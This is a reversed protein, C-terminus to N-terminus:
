EDTSEPFSPIFVFKGTVINRVLDLRYIDDCVIGEIPHKLVHADEPDVSSLVDRLEEWTM